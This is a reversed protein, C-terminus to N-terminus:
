CCAADRRGIASSRGASPVVIEDVRGVLRYQPESLSCSIAWVHPPGLRTKCTTTLSSSFSPQSKGWGGGLDGVHRSVLEDDVSVRQLQQM